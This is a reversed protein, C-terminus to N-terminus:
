MLKGTEVDAVWIDYNGQFARDSSFAVRKGDPSFRPERDDGHGFTLQRVGGGDPRMIWIHFTGGAYAEFAISDGAPSWHPRAPELFPDTLRTATGGATALSWLAGQLDMIITGHDPSVTAAINTGVTLTVKDVACSRLSGFAAVLSGLALAGLTSLVIRSRPSRKAMRSRRGRRFRRATGDM